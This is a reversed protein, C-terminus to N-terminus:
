KYEGDGKSSIDYYTYEDSGEYWRYTARKFRLRNLLDQIGEQFEKINKNTAFGGWIFNITMGNGTVKMDNEWGENNAWKIYNKRFIPFDRKQASVLKKELSKILRVVGTDSMGTHLKLNSAADAYEIIRLMIGDKTTYDTAAGSSIADISKELSSKIDFIIAISDVPKEIEPGSTNGSQSLAENKTDDSKESYKGVVWISLLIVVILVPKLYCKQNKTEM